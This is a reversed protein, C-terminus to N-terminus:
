GFGDCAGCHMNRPVEVTTTTTTMLQELTLKLEVQVTPRRSQGLEGNDYAQRQNPDSLVAYAEGVKKFETDDGGCKDPHTQLARRKYAKKIEESTASKMIELAEYYDPTSMRQPISTKIKLVEIPFLMSKSGSSNNSSITPQTPTTPPLSSM